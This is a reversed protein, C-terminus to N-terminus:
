SVLVGPVALPVAALNMAVLLKVEPSHYENDQSGAEETPRHESLYNSGRIMICALLTVVAQMKTLETRPPQHHRQSGGSNLPYIRDSQSHFNRAM